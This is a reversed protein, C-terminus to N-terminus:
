AGGGGCEVERVLKNLWKQQHGIVSASGNSDNTRRTGSDREGSSSSSPPAGLWARQLPPPAAAPRPAGGSPRPACGHPACRPPRPPPPAAAAPPPPPSRWPSSALLLLQPLKSRPLEVTAQARQQQQEAAAKEAAAAAKEAAAAAKEAAAAARNCPQVMLVVSDGQVGKILSRAGDLDLLLLGHEDVLPTAGVRLVLDGVSLQDREDFVLAGAPPPADTPAIRTIVFGADEVGLMIGFRTQSDRLLTIQRPAGPPAGGSASSPAMCEAHRIRRILAAARRRRAAAQLRVAAGHAADGAAPADVFLARRARSRAGGRGVGRAPPTPPAAPPTVEESNQAETAEAKRREAAPLEAATLRPPTTHSSSAHSPEGLGRPSSELRSSGDLSDNGEQPLRDQLPEPSTVAGLSRAKRASPPPGAPRDRALRVDAPATQALRRRQETPTAAAVTTAKRGVGNHPPCAHACPPPRPLPTAAHHLVGSLALLLHDPVVAEPERGSSHLKLFPSFSGQRPFM